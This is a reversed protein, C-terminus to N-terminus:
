PRSMSLGPWAYSTQGGAVLTKMDPFNWTSHCNGFTGCCKNLDTCGNPGGPSYDFAWSAADGPQRLHGVYILGPHDVVVPEAVVWTAAKKQKLDGACLDGEWLADFHWFDFGNYGMDPFLGVKVPTGPETPLNQYTIRIGHIKAPHPLDFRVGEWMKTNSIQIKKDGLAWEPHEAVSSQGSKGGDDWTIEVLNKPLTGVASGCKVPPTTDVPAVDQPGTDAPGTDPTTGIDEPGTDLPGSDPTGADEGQGDLTADAAGGDGAKPQGSTEPETGCAALLACLLTAVIIRM